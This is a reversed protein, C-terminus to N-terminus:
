ACADHSFARQQYRCSIPRGLVLARQRQQCAARAQEEREFEVGAWGASALLLPFLYFNFFFYFQTGRVCENFLYYQQKKITTPQCLDSRVRPCTTATSLM